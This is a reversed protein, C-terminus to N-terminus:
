LPLYIVVNDIDGPAGAKTIIELDGICQGISVRRQHGYVVGGFLIGAQQRHAAEALLDDDATFIAAAVASVPRDFAAAAMKM